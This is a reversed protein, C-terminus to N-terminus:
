YWATKIVIAKYWIGSFTFILRRNEKKVEKENNQNCIINECVKSTCHPTQIWTYILYYGVLSLQYAM